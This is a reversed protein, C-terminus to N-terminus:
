HDALIRSKQKSSTLSVNSQVTFFFLTMIMKCDPFNTASIIPKCSEM